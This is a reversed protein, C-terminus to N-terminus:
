FDLFQWFNFAPTGASECAGPTDTVCLNSITYAGSGGNFFQFGAATAGWTNTEPQATLTSATFGCCSSTIGDTIQGMPTGTTTESIYYTAGLPSLNYSSGPTYGTGGTGGTNTWVNGTCTANGNVGMDACVYHHVTAAKTQPISLSFLVILVLLPTFLKKM